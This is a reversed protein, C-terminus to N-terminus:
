VDTGYTDYHIGTYSHIYDIHIRICCIVYIRGYKTYLAAGVGRRAPPARTQWPWRRRHVVRQADSQQHCQFSSGASSAAVTVRAMPFVFCREGGRELETWTAWTLERCLCGESDSAGQQSSAWAPVASQVRRRDATRTIGRSNGETLESM